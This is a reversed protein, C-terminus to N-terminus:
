KKWIAWAMVGLIAFPLVQQFLTTEPQNFNFAGTTTTGGSSATANSPGATLGLQPMVSAAAAEAAM